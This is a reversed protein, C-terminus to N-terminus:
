TALRWALLGSEQRESRVLGRDRQSQLCARLRNVMLRALDPNDASLGRAAMVRMALEATTLPRNAERLADFAVALVQGKGARHRAPAAKARIRCVDLDPAFIRLTADVHELQDLLRRVERRHQEIQGAIEARKRILGHIVLPHDADAPVLENAM